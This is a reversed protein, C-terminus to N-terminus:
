PPGSFTEGGLRRALAEVREAAAEIAAAAAAEGAQARADAGARLDAAEQELAALRRATEEREDLAAIAAMVTLRNDGIEGFSARMAGIRADLEASLRVLHEEQGDECAMRYTRGAITVTVQGM